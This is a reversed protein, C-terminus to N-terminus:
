LKEIHITDLLSKIEPLAGVITVEIQKGIQFGASYEIRGSKNVGKVVYGPNGDITRYDMTVVRDIIHFIKAAQEARYELSNQITANYEYISIKARAADDPVTSDIIELGYFLVSGGESSKRSDSYQPQNVLNKTTNLDFSVNYPGTMISRPSASVVFPLFIALVLLLTLLKM